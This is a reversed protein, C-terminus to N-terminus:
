KGICFKSFIRGLLDETYTKGVLEELATLGRRLEASVIEFPASSDLSESAIEIAEHARRLCEYHRENTVSSSQTSIDVAKSKVYDILADRLAELGEGSEASLYFNQTCDKSECYLNGIAGSNLDIKNVVMWIEKARGRIQDLVAKWHEESDTADVVLLALDAWELREKALEIGIKEVTDTTETIGASDCFIFSFGDFLATEEILDRTTGAVDTVIARKKKLLLNLLSSKGANPPGCLLVRFGEKVSAGYSFTDVMRQLDQSTSKLKKRMAMETDPEIDEEPFDICAEIDALLDRLPEAINDILGSLKGALQESALSLARDSSATILDCVAEAQVLDVKGNLFARRTFEGPEAPTIGFAFLSRLMKEVILPSGHFQFEAVDEGTFSYPNPMYVALAHDITAGTKFVLLHGFLLKRPEDVPSASARFLAALAKRTAPGSVRIIAIGAPAPSTALAAITSRKDSETKDPKSHPV